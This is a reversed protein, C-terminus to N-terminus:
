HASNPSGDYNKELPITQTDSVIDSLHNIRFLNEIQARWFLYTSDGELPTHIWHTM